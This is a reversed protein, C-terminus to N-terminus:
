GFLDNNCRCFFWSLCILTAEIIKEDVCNNNVLLKELFDQYKEYLFKNKQFDYIIENVFDSKIRSIDLSNKNNFNKEDLLNEYIELFYSKKEVISTISNKVSHYSSLQESLFNINKKIEPNANLFSESFFKKEVEKSTLKQYENTRINSTIQKDFYFQGLIEMFFSDFTSIRIDKANLPIKLFLKKAKDVYKHHNKNIGIQKLDEKIDEDSYKTWAEIKENLRNKMEASAKKTFTIATIKDPESDELLLRLIKSIIFWTKGTGAAAIVNTSNGPELFKNINM